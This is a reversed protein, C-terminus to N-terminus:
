GKCVYVEEFQFFRLVSRLPVSMGKKAVENSCCPMQLLLVLM